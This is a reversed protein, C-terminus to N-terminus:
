QSALAPDRAIRWGDADRAVTLTENNSAGGAYTARYECGYAGRKLITCPGAPTYGGVQRRNRLMAVSAAFKQRTWHKRFAPGTLSYAQDEAGSSRQQLYELGFASAAAADPNPPAPNPVTQKSLPEAIGAEKPGTSPTAQPKVTTPTLLKYAGFVIASLALIVALISGRSKWASVRPAAPIPKPGPEVPATAAPKNLEVYAGLDKILLQLDSSWRAHTLECGNRFALEKLDDPLQDASPMTAGHVLVPIVPIDRKLASATEIRVFDSPDELRRDGKENKADVWNKGILALLVGCTAVSEDIAKRFDRGRQIAAVDMFVSAEGFHNVLDDFLRGAEGESDDRRYSIFIARM